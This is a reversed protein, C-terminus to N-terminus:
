GRLKQIPCAVRHGSRWYCYDNVKRILYQDSWVQRGAELLYYITVTGWYDNPGSWWSVSCKQKTSEVEACAIKYAGRHVFRSRLGSTLAERALMKATKSTLRRLPPAAVTTLKPTLAPTAKPASPTLENIRNSAWTSVFDARTFVSPSTTACDEEGFSTIGIEIIESTGPQLALLPGGSDGHCTGAGYSPPNVACLEGVPHFHTGLKSKCYETSQVVTPAYHLQAPPGVQDPSTRGWGAVEASTGPQWIESTALRIAPSSIPTALQLLAADGWFQFEGAYAYNPNVVIQTVASVVREPSAWEVNGTVVAYTSPDRIQGHEADVVCHAATLILNSSVVTGSCLGVEAGEERVVFAMYPFTGHGAVSGGIVSSHASSAGAAPAAAGVLLLCALAALIGRRNM